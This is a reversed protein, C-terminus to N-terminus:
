CLRCKGLYYYNVYNNGYFSVRQVYHAGPNIRHPHMLSVNIKKKLTFKIYKSGWRSHKSTKQLLRCIIKTTIQARLAEFHISFRNKKICVVPFGKQVHDHSILSEFNAILQPIKSYKSFNSISKPIYIFNM